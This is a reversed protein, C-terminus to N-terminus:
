GRLLGIKVVGMLLLVTYIVFGFFFDCFVCRVWRLVVLDLGEDSFVRLSARFAM